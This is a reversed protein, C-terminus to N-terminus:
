VEFQPVCTDQDPVLLVLYRHAQQTLYPLTPHYRWARCRTDSSLLYSTKAIQYAVSSQELNDYFGPASLRSSNVAANFMKFM